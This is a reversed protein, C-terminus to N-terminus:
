SSGVSRQPRSRVLSGQLLPATGRLGCGQALQEKLGVCPTGTETEAEEGRGAKGRVEGVKKDEVKRLRSGRKRKM